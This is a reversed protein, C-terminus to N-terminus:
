VDLEGENSYDLKKFWEKKYQTGNEDELELHCIYDTIEKLNLEANLEENYINFDTSKYEIFKVHECWGNELFWKKSKLEGKIYYENM